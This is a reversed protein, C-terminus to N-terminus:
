LCFRKCALFSPCLCNIITHANTIDHRGKKLGDYFARTCASRAYPMDGLPVDEMTVSTGTVLWEEGAIVKVDDFKLRVHDEIVSADKDDIYGNYTGEFLFYSCETLRKYDGVMGATMYRTDALTVGPLSAFKELDRKTPWAKDEMEYDIGYGTMAWGDASQVAKTEIWIDPVENDLFAVAHYLSKANETERTTVAYDIVRSFLAFSAAAILLFTLLTKMPSRLLSKLALSKKM